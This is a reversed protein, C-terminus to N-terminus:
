RRRASGSTIPSTPARMPLTTEKAKAKAEARERAPLLLLEFARLQRELNLASPLDKPFYRIATRRSVFVGEGLPM